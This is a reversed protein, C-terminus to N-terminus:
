KVMLQHQIIQRRLMERTKQTYKIILHQSEATNNAIKTGLEVKKIAGKYSGKMTLTLDNSLQFIEDKTNCNVDINMDGDAIKRAAELLKIISESITNSITLGMFILIIVGVVFSMVIAMFTFNYVQKAGIRKIASDMMYGIFCGLITTTIFGILLKSRIKMNNFWKM